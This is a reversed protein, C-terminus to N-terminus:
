NTGPNLLTEYCGKYFYKLQFNEAKYCFAWKDGYHEFMVQRADRENKAIIKIFYDKM